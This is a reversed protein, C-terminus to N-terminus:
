KGIFRKKFLEKEKKIILILTHCCAPKHRHLGSAASLDEPAPDWLSAHAMRCPHELSFGLRLLPVGHGLWQAKEGARM